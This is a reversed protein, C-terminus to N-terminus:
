QPIAPKDATAAVNMNNLGNNVSSYSGSTASFLSGKSVNFAIVIVIAIFAIVYAYETVGQGKSNRQNNTTSKRM